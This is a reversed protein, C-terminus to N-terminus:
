LTHTPHNCSLSLLDTSAWLYAPDLVLNCLKSKLLLPFFIFSKLCLFSMTLITKSLDCQTCQPLSILLPVTSPLVWAHLDTLLNCYDLPSIIAAWVSCTAHIFFFFFLGSSDIPWISLLWLCKSYYWTCSWGSSQVKKSAPLFHHLSSVVGGLVSHKLQQSGRKLAKGWGLNAVTLRRLRKKRM